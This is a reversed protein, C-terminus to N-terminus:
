VRIPMLIASFVGNNLLLASNPNQQLAKTFGQKVLTEAYDANVHVEYDGEKMLISNVADRQRSLRFEVKARKIAELGPLYVEQFGETDKPVISSWDPYNGVCVHGVIKFGDGIYVFLNDVIYYAKVFKEMSTIPIVGGYTLDAPKFLMRYGDTAVLHQNETDFLIGQLNPRGSETSVYATFEHLGSVPCPEGEPIPMPVSTESAIADDEVLDGLTTFHKLSYTGAKIDTPIILTADMNKLTLYLQGGEVVFTERAKKFAKLVKVLDKSAPVKNIIEDFGIM